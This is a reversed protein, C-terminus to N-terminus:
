KDLINHPQIKTLDIKKILDMTNENSTDNNSIQPGHTHNYTNFAMYCAALTFLLLISTLYNLRSKKTTNLQIKPIQRQRTSLSFETNIEHQFREFPIHMLQCIRKLHSYHYFSLNPDISSEFSSILDPRIKLISALGQLTQGSEVRKTRLLESLHELDSM